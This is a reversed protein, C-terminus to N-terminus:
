GGPTALKEKTEVEKTVPLRGAVILEKFLVCGFLVQFDVEKNRSGVYASETNRSVPEQSLATQMRLAVDGDSCCVILVTPAQHRLDAAVQDINAEAGVYVYVVSM